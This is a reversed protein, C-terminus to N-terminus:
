HWWLVRSSSVLSTPRSPAMFWADGLGGAENRPIRSVISPVAARVETNDPTVVDFIMCLSLIVFDGGAKKPDLRLIAQEQRYARKDSLATKVVLIEGAKVVIAGAQYKVNLHSERREITCTALDDRSWEAVQLQIDTVVAARNGSNIFTLTTEGSPRVEGKVWDISLGPAHGGLVVRLDDSQRLINFYATGASIALAITGTITGVWDKAAM